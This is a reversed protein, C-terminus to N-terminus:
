SLYIGRHQGCLVDDWEVKVVVVEVAPQRVQVEVLSVELKM